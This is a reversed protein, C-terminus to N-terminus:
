KRPDKIAVQHLIELTKKSTYLFFELILYTSTIDCMEDDSDKISLPPINNIKCVPFNYLDREM